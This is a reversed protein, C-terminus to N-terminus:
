IGIPAIIGQAAMTEAGEEAKGKREEEAAVEEMEGVAIDRVLRIEFGRIAAALKRFHATLAVTEISFSVGSASRGSV